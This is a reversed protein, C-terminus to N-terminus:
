RGALITREVNGLDVAVAQPHPAARRGDTRKLLKRPISALSGMRTSRSNIYFALLIEANRIEQPAALSAANTACLQRQMVESDSGDSRNFDASMEVMLYKSALCTARPAMLSADTSVLDEWVDPGSFILDVNLSVM